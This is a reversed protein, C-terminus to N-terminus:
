SQVEKEAAARAAERKAKFEAYERHRRPRSAVDCLWRWLDHLVLWPHRAYHWRVEALMAAHHAQANAWTASRTQLEEGHRYSFAMSEFLLPLSDDLRPHGMNMGVFVTSVRTGFVWSVDVIRDSGQFMQGWAVIDHIPVPNKDEDLIWYSEERLVRRRLDEPIPQM